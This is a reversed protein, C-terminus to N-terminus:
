PSYTLCPLSPPPPKHLYTMTHSQLSTMAILGLKNARVYQGRTLHSAYATFASRSKQINFAQSLPDLKIPMYLTFRVPMM